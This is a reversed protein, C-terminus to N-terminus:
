MFDVDVAYPYTMLYELAKEVPLGEFVVGHLTATIPVHLKYERALQRAIRLTRVGEALEPMNERIQTASEGKALRTGFTYNRSNISTATTVLDGIGAVGIFATSSAGLAKGFYVMEALGRAILLGQINRGLGLGGLVGSGLAVINKLAGALEAGMLDYSGFVRFRPTNLASQGIQIVERFRSGVLTAAPQGALIEASLNPGSLCGVRVVSSEELVVESMTRVNARTVIVDPDNLDDEELGKLDFGKTGHIVIHHPRLHPGLAQMMRRFSTSPVIPFLLTCHKALEALDSSATIRKSLDVGLHRHTRNIEDVTEAKRSFLMVDANHALTNAVATGFSGAGIVGVPNLTTAM